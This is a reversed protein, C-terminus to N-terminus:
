ASCIDSNESMITNVDYAVWTIEATMIDAPIRLPRGLTMTEELRMSSTM